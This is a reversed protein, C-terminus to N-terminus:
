LQNELNFINDLFSLRDNVGDPVLEYLWYYVKDAGGPDNINRLLIDVYHDGAKYTDVSNNKGVTPEDAEDFFQISELYPSVKDAFSHGYNNGEYYFDFHSRLNDIVKQWTEPSGKAFGHLFLVPNPRYGDPNDEWATKGTYLEDAEVSFCMFLFMMGLLIILFNFRKNRM